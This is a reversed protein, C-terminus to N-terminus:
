DCTKQDRGDHDLLPVKSKGFFGGSNQLPSFVVQLLNKGKKISSATYFPKLPEYPHCVNVQM